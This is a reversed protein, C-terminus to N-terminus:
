SQAEMKRSSDAALWCMIGVGSLAVAPYFFAVDGRSGDPLCFFSLATIASGATGATNMTGCVEGANKGGIGICFSWSPRLTMLACFTVNGAKAPFHPQRPAYPCAPDIIPGPAVPLNTLAISGLATASHSLFQRHDLLARDATCLLETGTRM